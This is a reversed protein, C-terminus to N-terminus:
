DVNLESALGSRLDPSVGQPGMYVNWVVHAFPLNQVSTTASDCVFCEIGTQPVHTITVSDGKKLPRSTIHDLMAKVEASFQGKPDNAAFAEEFSKRLVWDAIDREMVLVLRKAVDAAALADVDRPAHDTDCYGAIRYFKIGLKKRTAIGTRRLQENRGGVNIQMVAPFPDDSAAQATPAPEDSVTASVSLLGAALVVLLM